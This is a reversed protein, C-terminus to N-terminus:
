LEKVRAGKPTDEIAWGKAKLGNQAARQEAEQKSQGEGTAVAKIQGGAAEAIHAPETRVGHDLNLVVIELSGRLLQDVAQDGLNYAIDFVDLDLTLDDVAARGLYEDASRGRPVEQHHSRAPMPTEGAEQESRHALLADMVSRTRHDDHM